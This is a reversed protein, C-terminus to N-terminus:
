RPNQSYVGVIFGSPNALSQLYNGAEPAYDVCNLGFEVAVGAKGGCPHGGEERRQWGALSGPLGYTRKYLFIVALGINFFYKGGGGRGLGM